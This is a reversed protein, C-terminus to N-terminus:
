NSLYFLKGGQELIDLEYGCALNEKIAAHCFYIYSKAFARIDYMQLVQVNYM